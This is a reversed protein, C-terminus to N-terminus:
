RKDRTRSRQRLAYSLHWAHFVMLAGGTALAAFLAEGGQPWALESGAIGLLIVTGLIPTFLLATKPQANWNPHGEIEIRMPVTDLAEIRERFRASVAWLAAILLISLIIVASTM